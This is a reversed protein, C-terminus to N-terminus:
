MRPLKSDRHINCSMILGFGIMAALMATGGYSILPLPAGVVPILGMVMAVNIFVYLSFNVMLGFAMFRGFAHRCRFAIWGAYLFTLGFLALLFVGGLLGWEEAWLTFIFDTQKEPLFNLHSQTGKLFGRGEIGGSGLAIKSQTIHYGAGLPDSEPDLFTRVRQKQYDHLGFQWALPIIAATGAIGGIFLWKSAGAIFFMAAGAMIIMLSTGLDPQLLVLGVPAGILLAPPILFKFRKMDDLTAVHFYRALAMVVVIKMLESPQLKMFGLDIWRQAGMGIHGMAEVIVLLIFGLAYLPYAARYWVRVDILAIVMMGVLCVAFRAIQRSAWPNLSGNAASYLAIFGVGAILGILLVLGWNMQILKQKLTMGGQIEIAKGM